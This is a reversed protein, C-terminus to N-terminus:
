AGGWPATAWFTPPPTGPRLRGLQLLGHTELGALTEQSRRPEVALAARPAPCRGPSVGSLLCSARVHGPLASGDPPGPRAQGRFRGSCHPHGSTGRSLFSTALGTPGTDPGQQREQRLPEDPEQLPPEGLLISRAGAQVWKPSGAGLGVRSLDTPSPASSSEPGPTSSPHSAPAWHGLFRLCPPDQSSPQEKGVTRPKHGLRATGPPGWEHVLAPLTPWFKSRSSTDGLRHSLARLPSPM